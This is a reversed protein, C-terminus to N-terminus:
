KVRYEKYLVKEAIKRAFIADELNDFSGVEIRNKNKQINVRYMGRFMRVGRMGSTNDKATKKNWQNFLPNSERLNSIRNDHKNGNKHDIMSPLNKKAVYWVLRHISICRQKGKYNIGLRPYRGKKYSGAYSGKKTGNKLDIKWKIKGTNINVDIKTLVYDFLEKENRRVKM